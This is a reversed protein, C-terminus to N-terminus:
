SSNAHVRLSFHLLSFYALPVLWTPHTNAQVGLSFVLNLYISFPVLWYM